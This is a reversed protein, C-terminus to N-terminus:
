LGFRLKVDRIHSDRTPPRGFVVRDYYPSFPRELADLANVSARLTEFWGADYERPAAILKEIRELLVRKRMINEPTVENLCVSYIGSLYSRWEENLEADSLTISEREAAAVTRSGFEDPDSCQSLYDRAFFERGDALTYAARPRSGAAIEARIAAEDVGATRCLTELTEFNETVYEIDKPHSVLAATNM